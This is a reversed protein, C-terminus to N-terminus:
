SYSSRFFFFFISLIAEVTWISMSSVSHALRTKSLFRDKVSFRKCMAAAGFLSGGEFSVHLVPLSTDRLLCTRKLRVWRVSAPGTEGTTVLVVTNDLM